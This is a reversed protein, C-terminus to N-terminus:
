GARKARIASRIADADADDAFTVDEAAAVDKLADLDAANLAEDAAVAAARKERIAIIIGAKDAKAPLEVSEDKALTRLDPVKMGDLGDGEDGDDDALQAQGAEILRAAEEDTVTQLGEIPSRPVGAIMATALLIIDKM